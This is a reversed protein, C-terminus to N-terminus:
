RDADSSPPPAEDSPERALDAGEAEAVRRRALEHDPAGWDHLEPFTSDPEMAKLDPFVRHDNGDPVLRSFALQLKTAVLREPSLM